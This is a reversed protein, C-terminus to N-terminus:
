HPFSDSPLLQTSSMSQSADLFLHIIVLNYSILLYIPPYQPSSKSYLEPCRISNSISNSFSFIPFPQLSSSLTTCSIQPKLTLRGLTICCPYNINPLSPVPQEQHQPTNVARCASHFPIRSRPRGRPRDEQPTFRYCSPRPIPDPLAPPQMPFLSEAICRFHIHQVRETLGLGGGGMPLAPCLHLVTTLAKQFALGKKTSIHRLPRCYECAAPIHGM